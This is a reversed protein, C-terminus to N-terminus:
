DGPFMKKTFGTVTQGPDTSTFFTEDGHNVIVFSGHSQIGLRPLNLTVTGTGNANVTYTGSFSGQFLIGNITVNYNASLQGRGDFVIPGASAIPGSGAITGNYVFGHSGKMTALSFQDAKNRELAPAQADGRAGAEAVLVDPGHGPGGSWATCVGLGLLGVAAIASLALTMIRNV